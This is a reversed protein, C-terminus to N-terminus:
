TIVHARIVQTLAPLAADFGEFLTQFRPIFFVMLFILVGVALFLLVAPYMLAALIKARLEKDRVCM